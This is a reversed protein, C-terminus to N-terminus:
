EPLANVLAIFHDARARYDRYQDFSEFGPTMCVIVDQSRTLDAARDQVWACAGALDGVEFVCNVHPAHAALLSQIQPAVGGILLLAAVSHSAHLASIVPAIEDSTLGPRHGGVILVLPQRQFARITAAINVPNGGASDEVFTIRRWSRIPQLRHKVPQFAALAAACTSLSAGASSAAVIAQMANYCNHLGAVRLDAVAMVREQSAGAVRWIDTGDCWVGHEPREAIGVWQRPANGADILLDRSSPDDANLVATHAVTQYRLLNGKTAVYKEFGGYDDMHKNPTVNTVVAVDPILPFNFSLQRDSVELVLFDQASAGAVDAVSQMHTRDNGMEFCRVGRQTAHESLISGIMRTTTTKGDAGTVAILRGRFLSFYLRTITWIRDRYEERVANVENFFPKLFQNREYRFWSQTVFLIANEEIGRGYADGLHLSVREDSIADVFAQEDTATSSEHVRRWEVALAERDSSFDHAVVRPVGISHLWVLVASGEAGSAGLLHVPNNLFFEILKDRSQDPTELM